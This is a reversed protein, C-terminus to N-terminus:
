GGTPEVSQRDLLKPLSFGFKLSFVVLVVALHLAFAPLSVKM